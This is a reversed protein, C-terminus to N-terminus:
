HVIKSKLIVNKNHKEQRLIAAVIEEDVKRSPKWKFEHDYRRKTFRDRADIVQKSHTERLVPPMMELALRVGRTWERQNIRGKADFPLMFYDIHRIILVRRGAVELVALACRIRKEAYRPLTEREDFRLLRDLWAMSLRLISDDDDIILLRCGLGMFIGM